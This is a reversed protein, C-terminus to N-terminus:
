IAYYSAFGTQKFKVLQREIARKENVKGFIAKFEIEFDKYLEFVKKIM